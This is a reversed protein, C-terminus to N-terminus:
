SCDITVGGSGQQRMPNGNRPWRGGYGVDITVRLTFSTDTVRRTFSSAATCAGDSMLVSQTLGVEGWVLPLGFHLRPLQPVREM